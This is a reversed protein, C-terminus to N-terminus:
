DAANLIYYGAVSAILTGAPYLNKRKYNLSFNRVVPNIVHLCRVELKLHEFADCYIERCDDSIYATM